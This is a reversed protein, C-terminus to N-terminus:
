QPNDHEVLLTISPKVIIFDNYKIYIEQLTKDTFGLKLLKKREKASELMKGGEHYLYVYYHHQDKYLKSLALAQNGPKRKGLM